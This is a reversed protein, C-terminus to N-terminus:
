AGFRLFLKFPQHQVSNLPHFVATFSVTLGVEGKVRQSSM